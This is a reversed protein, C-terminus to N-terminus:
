SANTSPEVPRPKPPDLSGALADFGDLCIEQRPVGFVDAQNQMLALVERFAAERGENFASDRARNEKAAKAGRERLLYVIDRMYDANASSM